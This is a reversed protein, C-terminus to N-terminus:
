CNVNSGPCVRLEKYNEYSQPTPLTLRGVECTFLSLGLAVCRIYASGPSLALDMTSQTVVINNVPQPLPAQPDRQRTGESSKRCRVRADTGLLPSVYSSPFSASSDEHSEVLDLM